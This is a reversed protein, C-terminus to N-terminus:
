LKQKVYNKTKLAEYELSSIEAIKPQKRQLPHLACIKSLKKKFVNKCTVCFSLFQTYELSKCVQM